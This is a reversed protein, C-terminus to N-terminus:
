KVYAIVAAIIKESLMRQNTAEKMFGHDAANSLYGLELVVAPIKNSKLVFFDSKKLGNVRIGQLQQFQNILQEALRKSNDFQDNTESVICEIGSTTANQDYNVHLSIFVDANAGHAIGLREPLSLSQDKTRTLIVKVSREEGIQKLTSALAMTLDKEVLGQNSSSGPDAGGHGADVVVVIKNDKNFAVDDGLNEPTSQLSFSILLLSIVPLALFYLVSIKRSTKNKTMMIIRNKITQSFFRHVLRVSNEAQIHQLMCQLYSEISVGRKLVESDALYEHQLKIASKYLIMVPNFWLLMHVLEALLLDIWHHQQVHVKEHEIILESIAHKPLFIWYFFTFPQTINSEFLSTNQERKKECNRRLKVINVISILLRSAVFSFGIWYCTSLFLSFDFTGRKPAIQDSVHQSDSVVPRPNLFQIATVHLDDSAVPLELSPIVFSFILGATLYIRNLVFFTTSRFFVVYLCYFTVICLNVKVLYLTDLVM